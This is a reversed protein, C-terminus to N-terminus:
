NSPAGVGRPTALCVQLTVSAQCLSSPRLEPRPRVAVVKKNRVLVADFLQRALRSRLEDGAAEWVSPVDALFGALRELM